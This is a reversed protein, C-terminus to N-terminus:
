PSFLQTCWILYSSMLKVTRVAIKWYIRHVSFMSKFDLFNSERKGLTLMWRSKFQLRLHIKIEYFGSLVTPLLSWDWPGKSIMGTHGISKEQSASSWIKNRTRGNTWSNSSILYANGKPSCGATFYPLLPHMRPSLFLPGRYTSHNVVLPIVDSQFHSICVPTPLM